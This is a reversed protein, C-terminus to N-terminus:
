TGTQQKQLHKLRGQQAVTGDLLAASLYENV